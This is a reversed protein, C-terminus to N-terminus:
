GKAFLAKVARMQTGELENIAIAAARKQFGTSTPDAQLDHMEQILAAHLAKIRTVKPNSSPNFDFLVADLAPQMVSVHDTTGTSGADVSITATVKM